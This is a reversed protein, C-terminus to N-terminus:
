GAPFDSVPVIADVGAARLDGENGDADWVPTVQLGAVPYEVGGRSAYGSRGLVKLELRRRGREDFVALAGEKEPGPGLRMILMSRGGTLFDLGFCAALAAFDFLALFDHVSRATTRLLVFDDAVKLADALSVAGPRPRGGPLSPPVGPVVLAELLQEARAAQEPDPFLGCKEQLDRLGRRAVARSFAEYSLLPTQDPVGPHKFVGLPRDLFVAMGLERLESPQELDRVSQRLVEGAFNGLHPDLPDGAFLRRTRKSPDLIQEEPVRAYPPPLVRTNEGPSTPADPIPHDEYRRRLLWGMRSARRRLRKIAAQAEDEGGTALWLDPRQDMMELYVKLVADLLLMDPYNAGQHHFTVLDYATLHRALHRLLYSLFDIREEPTLANQDVLLQLFALTKDVFDTYPSLAVEDFLGRWLRPLSDEAAHTHRWAELFRRAADPLDGRATGRLLTELLKVKELWSLDPRWAREILDRASHMPGADERASLYSRYFFALEGLSFLPLPAEVSTLPLRSAGVVAQFVRCILEDRFDAAARFQCLPIAGVLERVWKRTERSLFVNDGAHYGEWAYSDMARTVFVVENEADLLVALIPEPSRQGDEVRFVQWAQFGHRLRTHAPDLLRGQFIEWSVDVEVGAEWALALGPAVFFHEPRLVDAIVERAVDPSCRDQALSSSIARFRPM